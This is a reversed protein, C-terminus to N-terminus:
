SSLTPNAELEMAPKSQLPRRIMFWAIACGIIILAGASMFSSTYSGTAKILFGTVLPALLGFTNGGLVVLSFATGASSRDIILDNTLAFNLTTAAQIFTISITLIIEMLWFNQVFPIAVICTSLIMFVIMLKRREGTTKDRGKLLHDSYHGFLITVVTAILYPIAGAWGVQMINLHRTTTLYSPLWTLFLYSTYIQCGKSLLLGWMTSQRLLSGLRMKQVKKVETPNLHQQIYEREKQSLWKAKAPTQFIWFWIVMFVLGLSGLVYFSTRWVFAQILAASLIIGFAPGALTGVEFISTALGRERLPIWERIAQNSAPFTASEGLGLLMRVLLLATFSSVSGTLIAAVSWLGLSLGNMLRSGLRDSLLGLPIVALIYIYSFASLLVGVQAPGLHFEKAIYPGAVAINTRDVYNISALIFLMIPIIWRRNM